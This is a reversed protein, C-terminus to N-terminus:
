AAEAVAGTLRIAVERRTSRDGRLFQLHTVAGANDLVHHL